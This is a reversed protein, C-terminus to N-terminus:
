GHSQPTNVSILVSPIRQATFIVCSCSARMACLREIGLPLTLLLLRCTRLAKTDTTACPAFPAAQGLTAAVPIRDSGADTAPKLTTHAIPDNGLTLLHLDQTKMDCRGAAVDCM